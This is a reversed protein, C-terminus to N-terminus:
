EDDEELSHRLNRWVLYGGLVLGALLGAIAYARQGFHMGLSRGLATLAVLPLIFLWGLTGVHVLSRWLTSRGRRARAMRDAKARVQKLSDEDKSSGPRAPPRPENTASTM